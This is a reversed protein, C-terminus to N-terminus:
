DGKLGEIDPPVPLQIWRQQGPLYRVVRLRREPTSLVERLGGGQVRVLESVPPLDEIEVFRISRIAYRECWEDLLEAVEPRVTLSTFVASLDLRAVVPDDLLSFRPRTVTLQDALVEVQTSWGSETDSRTASVRHLGPRLRVEVPGPGVPVGDIVLDPRAPHSRVQLRGTPVRAESALFDTWAAM